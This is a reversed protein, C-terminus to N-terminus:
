VKNSQEEKPAVRIDGLASHEHISDIYENTKAEPVPKGSEVLNSTETTQDVQKPKRNIGNLQVRM